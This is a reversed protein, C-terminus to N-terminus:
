RKRPAPAQVQTTVGRLRVAFGGAHRLDASELPRQYQAEVRPMTRVFQATRALLEDESGRGLEITAGKDLGVRWSGRASLTLATLEGANLAELVPTLRGLM